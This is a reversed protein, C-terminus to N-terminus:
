LIVLVTCVETIFFRSNAPEFRMATTLTTFLLRVLEIVDGGLVAFVFVTKCLGTM